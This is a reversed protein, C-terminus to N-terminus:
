GEGNEVFIPLSFASSREEGMKPKQFHPLCSPAKPPLIKFDEFVM